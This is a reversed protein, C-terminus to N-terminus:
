NLLETSNARIFNAIDNDADALSVGPDTWTQGIKRIVTIKQDELPANTLELTSGSLTFEANATIDGEPSDQDTFRTVFNGNSDKTDVQYKSIDAKRLRRGAVFVEFTDVANGPGSPDIPLFDLEFSRGSGDATFTQTILQDTYPINESPGQNVVVTGASILNNVGTGLTGRRIQRLSNGQKVFYEIREGNIFVVGPIRGKKSPEPLGTADVIEIRLDNWNLDSALKYKTESDLRKYHVRNLIDKFQRYGFRETIKERRFEIYEITDNASIKNLIRLYNQDETVYYDVNPVLRDGNLFVWVDESDRANQRLRITGNQLTTFDAFAQTGGVLTTRTLNNYKTRTLDQIDHNSLTKVEITEGLGPASAFHIKNPTSIFRQTSTEDTGEYGFAYEGDLVLFIEIKDGVEGVGQTLTISNNTSSWRYDIAKRLLQDNIYVEVVGDRISNSYYQWDEIFYERTNAVVPMEINYGAQLIKGAVSVITNQAVPLGGVVDAELTFVTTSGDGTFTQVSVESFNKGTSYFLGYDVVQGAQPATGFNLGVLDNTTKFVNSTINEGNIRTYNVVGEQWIVNTEFTNTSGDAVFKNIDLIKDGSNGIVVINLVQGASPATNFTLTDNVYNIIYDTNSITNNGLKVFIANANHPHIGLDFTQTTGDTNWFQSQINSAGDDPRHVVSIDVTDAIRGPVLEEPGTTTMPTIFNDGDVVIEAADIGKANSYNLLGGTLETDFSLPDPKFSGDSTVKRIIFTDNATSPIGLNDLNLSTQSGNGTISQMIANPNAGRSSDHVYNPDDIRVNNKYVNYVIGNELPNEWSIEVTSGDLQVVIDEYTNDYLDYPEIGFGTVEFGGAGSFDFSKVQVGGYDVGDMLQGIDKGIMGATPKYFKEIRDQATLLWPALEYDVKIARGMKPPTTFTLRGRKRTYTKSTDVFNTFAYESRLLEVGDIYIKVKASNLNMPWKLDYVSTVNSGTFTETRKVELFYPNGSVRDFRTIVHTARVKGNGLVASATGQEGGDKVSGNLIVDPVSTYGSGSNLIEIKSLKNNSLYAKAKAGSGGGGEISVVPPLVYDKGTKGITIEKIEYGVNDKWWKDPYSDISNPLNTIVNNNIKTNTPEIKSKAFNFRPPLDFDTIVSNTPEVKEYASVYQRIKTKYPKVEAIYDQYSEISDNKFTTKQQLNGVNHTAQIFSTKFAWDINPQEMFAYRVSSIFLKNYEDELNDILIKDRLTELIIRTETIPQNDYFTVDFSNADFGIQNSSIDFISNKFQITANQKGVTAYNQTYDETPNDAIKELLLWGGTGVNSIKVIDGINNQLGSLQYSFDILDDIETFANFGEAYWDAYEWYLNTDFRQAITRNWKNNTWNYLSWKGAVTTDTLALVTFPRVTLTTNSDYGEGPDVINISIIKGVEDITTEIIADTGIGNVTVKPGIRTSAGTVYSPDVYGRGAETITVGTIKGDSIIPTLTATKRKAVGVIPLELNSDISVDYERSTTSPRPDSRLLPSIDFEDVIINQLLVKNTREIVQKLAETKNIFMSQRPRNLIGYKAKASLKTDPVPRDKSDYGILSDFWKREIDANPKSTGIGESIIQYENHINQDRNDLVYYKLNLAIDKNSLFQKCNFMAMRDKAQLAVFSYGQGAPDAILQRVAFGTLKRNETTPLTRKNAVWYFYKPTSVGSIPDWVLRQSYVEDGYRSVGSIGQAIGEATDALDNWQSPLLDSQVWEYVNVVGNPFNAGWYNTQYTIDNQQYNYYKVANLDWWLQGVYKDGWANNEDVVVNADGISYTAPDYYTKYSLEQEAPGAIKGQVPDIFDLDKVLENTKTNYLFLSKINKTKVQDVPSRHTKWSKSGIPKRFDVIMGQYTNYDTIEPMATYIHNGKVLINKGFYTVIEEADFIFEQAFLLSRNIREYVFIVGTDMRTQKFGTFEDDFVTTNSDFTTPLDVDGTLSSVALQNGDFNLYAGFQESQEGNPSRLAQNFVFNQNELTYIYVKGQDKKYSDNYPESIAIMEGDASISVSDGFGSLNGTSIDTYPPEIAQSHIFQGGPLRRYVNVIREGTSDNGQIRTSVILVSGDPTQDFSKAFDRIGFEPDYTQEGTFANLPSNPIYGVHSIGIDLLTWDQAVFASGSAINRNASYPLSNYEVIENQKYFTSSNFEGRFLPNVDLQWTFTDANADTGHKVFHISGANNATNNGNSGIALRYLGGEKAFSIEDGLKAYSKREPVTFNNVVAFENKNDLQYVTFMGENTMGSTTTGVGETIPISNVLEWDNNNSAPINAERPAGALVTKDYFYYEFNTKQSSVVDPFDSAEEIVIIKGTYTNGPLYVGDVEGMPRLNTGRVRVINTPTGFDNGVSWNGTVNKVYIRVDNFQRKYFTIEATAGTTQDQVIDGVVPEFPLSLPLPGFQTFTFDIYGDWIDYVTHQKDILASSLATDTFDTSVKDHGMYFQDGVSLNNSFNEPLRVTWLPSPQLAFTNGPDGEYTLTEMFSVQEYGRLPLGLNTRANNANLQFPTINYYYNPLTRGSAVTLLDVYVLGHGTDNFVNSSDNSTTYQPTDIWWYGGVVNTTDQFDESYDGIRITGVFVTGSQEFTGNVDKLYITCTSVDNAVHEVIGSAVASSLTEGVQPINAFNEVVLVNDIKKQIVHTDSLFTGTIQPFEGDFPQVNLTHGAPNLYTFNNWNLVISDGPLSANYATYPARVLLHSTNRNNIKYEGAQLLRILSSDSQSVVGVYDNFSDFTIANASADIPQIARFLNPGYKVIQGKNYNSSTSYNGTYYSRTNSAEPSGVVLFRGDPSLAVSEGFKGSDDAVGTPADIKQVLVYNTSDSAREYIHVGAKEPIGIAMKTNNENVSLSHGFGHYTSDLELTSNIRQHEKYVKNNKLVTWKGNDDDDIWVLENENLNATVNDNADKVTPERNTTFITITGTPNAEDYNDFDSKETTFEIKNLYVKSAKYFGDMTPYSTTSMNTIGFVDGVAIENITKNTTITITGNQNQFGEVRLDSETHQLVDWTQKNTAVWIYANKNIESIDFALIGDKDAVARNIDQADVYGVTKVYEENNYLTPIKNQDYGEPKLFVDYNPIRYILDTPDVPLVDVLSIPQPELKFQNEDLQWEIEEYNDTAGYQSSKLAWEEYFDVSEKDASALSDFLKDISNRTGKDQIFGQYFKYQSVDDNIINELYQRKQYGTIHQALKQQEADFNDSELEYFDTFQNLRYDFNTLLKPQPKSDLRTWQNAVFKENGSITNKASYYFEKYKVTDGIAYDKYQTWETVEAADFIFGPVNLGGDWTESVYGLVRIREQRYGTVSDYIVDEFVSTNDLLAVHEFQVLPLRVFYVGDATNVLNISFENGNRLLRTYEVNLPRGDANQLSYEYFKSKIDDVVTYPKSFTIQNASPSVTLITGASWGQTTWYLFEKVSYKWDEVVQTETNYFDFKFGQTELYNAYSLLFDVVEQVTEYVTGYPVIQSIPEFQQRFIGTAGGRIPIDKIKQFKEPDFSATSVHAEVTRYFQNNFKVYQDEVYQKDTDWESFAESIGGVNIAPDNNRPRAPNIVFQPNERDYGRVVYGYSQKEIIVGSYSIITTPSSKNLFINYNEKPLFVNGKNFPTRSDLIFRLKDKDTYAGLKIGLQSKLGILEEKYANNTITSNLLVYNVIYDVLGSTNSRNTDGYLNSFILNAISIPKNTNAYTWQGALNRKVKSVDWGLGMVKAPQNLLWSKLFSFPYESSKRWAHETPAIDGFVFGNKAPKAIYEKAFGSQLPSLLNGDVDVPIHKTLDTRIYQDAYIERKGPEAIKGAELDEWLILNDSTYPAPGYKSEWWSPKVTFGLMEWPTLHPTTTDFAEQYINRWFGQLAKNDPGLMASYNYTFSNTEDYFSNTTYDVGGLSESWKVFDKILINDISSKKFKTNRYRGPLFKHIDLKNPDYSVKINNYIRRELELLLNDRFDNYAVTKSGDHGIIVKTPTIYSTDIIIEPVYAPYLGLKTPTSPIFNGDTSEYEHVVIKDGEAKTATIVVFGENNFTYDIGHALQLGNKYVLVAKNSQANKNFTESISFFNNEIDYVTFELKKFGQFPVMDSFYFPSVTSKTKTIEKLIKDVHVNVPGDYGLTNATQLFARKFTRYEKRAFDIAKVVNAGQTTIHYLPLTLPGAHQLFKKGFMNIDGLDGLNSNGPFEGAFNDLDEIMTFVHDNIEGLTFDSLDSNTTNRELNFPFEYMGNQNKDADSKTKIIVKAEGQIPNDFTVIALGNQKSLKWDYRYKNDVLIVIDLDTLTGSNEYTDIAFSQATDIVNYQAIVRQRLDHKSKTWGNKYEFTTLDSYKRLFGQKTEKAFLQNNEQYNFQGTVLDFNFTIDGVNELARYKLPFGLEIDNTGTGVAYAFVKSGVFTSTPYTEADGFSKGNEDYLDFHPQQNVKSKLQALKWTTGDFWWHKGGNDTGKKILVVDNITAVADTDEILAIQPVNSNHTIFKVLYIKNNARIDIDKTVLLRMGDTLDVGDINYGSSGEITSFIDTTQTDIVDVDANKAQTGMNYLKLGADFEIIPRKARQSQDISVISGNLEATKEIVSKHFWKNNRTWANKDASARNIVIYDATVSYSAANGFPLNDFQDNDFAIPVDDAYALNIVLEGEEILKIRSGVGEVYWSGTAYKSPTVEGVFNLKMGNQLKWGAATTYDKKGLIEDEVDISSAEDVEGIRIIGGADINNSDVYYLREPANIPVTFTIKGEENVNNGEMGPDEYLTEDDLSRATRISFKMDPTSVDFTYTQGKFLEITPNRELNGNIVFAPSELDTVSTVTYTSTIEDSQGALNIPAPGTPLWYYERFNVLKDWNINPNWSYYEAGNLRDHNSVDGGFNRIQNIYDNYDKYFDVNGLLDKHVLAPELQYDQREKNIDAIYNDAVRFAKADRRGYYGNEKRAVGPQLVQDLTADLFKSNKPTRFYKPLLDKSKRNNKGGAPLPSEKQNNEYAM